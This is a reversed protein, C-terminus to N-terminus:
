QSTEMNRSSELAMSRQKCSLLHANGQRPSLRPTAHTRIQRQLVLRRPSLHLSPNDPSPVFPLIRRIEGCLGHWNSRGILIFTLVFTWRSSSILKSVLAGINIFLYFYHYVRSQTVTPDFIVREGNKMERVVIKQLPIQEAILPSINPKFSGTGIGMIILGILFCALSNQSHVIVPPIASLVLIIHGIIAIALAWCITKYRGLYKDAVYAGFLPILYVWFQNFTGIGTSARQGM